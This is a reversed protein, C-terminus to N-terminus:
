SFLLESGQTDKVNEISGSQQQALILNVQEEQMKHFQEMKQYYSQEDQDKEEVRSVLDEVVRRVERDIKQKSMTGGKKDRGDKKNVKREL